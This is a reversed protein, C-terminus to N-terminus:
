LHTEEYANLSMAGPVFHTAGGKAPVSYGKSYHAERANAHHQPLPGLRKEEPKDMCLCMWVCTCIFVAAIGSLVAVVLPDEFDFAAETNEEEAAAATTERGSEFEAGPRVWPTPAPLPPPPITAPQLVCVRDRRANPTFPEDTRPSEGAGCVTHPFCQLMDGARYTGLPCVQCVRDMAANPPAVEQTGDSCRTWPLCSNNGPVKFMGAGCLVCFADQVEACPTAFQGPGCSRPDRCRACRQENITTAFSVGATCPACVRDSTATPVALVYTGPECISLQTCVRNSRPTAQVSAFHTPPCVALPRCERDSTGTAPTAEFERSQCETLAACERNTDATCGVAEYEGRKCRAGCMSCKRDTFESPPVSAYEVGVACKTLDGCVRDSSPTPASLEYRGTAGSCVPAADKCMPQGAEDQYQTYGDCEACRRDSAPTPAVQQFEGVTCTTTNACVRDSLRTGARVEYETSTCRTHERCVRPATDRAPAAEFEGSKCTPQATCAGAATTASKNSLYM